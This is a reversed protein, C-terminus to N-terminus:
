VGFQRLHHDAHKYILTGWLRPSLRGFAPHEPWAADGQKAAARDLLTGVEVIEADCYEPVRSILEPATPAGKPLPLWRIILYRVLPNRLPTRRPPITIEGLAMRLADALHALMRPCDMRGWRAPTDARLRRLRQRLENRTTLDFITRAPM